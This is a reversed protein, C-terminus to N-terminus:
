RRAMGEREKLRSTRWGEYWLDRSAERLEGRWEAFVAEKLRVFDCHEANMPDAFGWPFKRGIVDPEYMDPSIISLPLYPIEAIESERKHRRISGSSLRKSNPSGGSGSGEESDADEDGEDIGNQGIIPSEPEDDLGLAELPDLNAKRLSDWVSKKLYTMHATTITDAKSIVPIVTTKGQLTRLVQLDLNEDLSGFLRHGTGYSGFHGNGNTTVNKSDEINQDLRAPDLILFVAHIHTDQVGPARMVKMEETFTEEFKSELFSSMERLQLDVVNKDLGESDWLTLGIREGEVESELYHSLFKGSKSTRPAFIDDALPEPKSRKKPPLALSTKLFNLFSTKGAGRAGIILVNFPTPDKRRRIRRPSNVTSVASSAYSYRGRHTMSETRAYPDIWGGNRVGSPIPPVPVSLTSSMTYSRVQPDMSSSRVGHGSKESTASDPRDEGGFSPFHTPEALDPLRPPSRPIAAAERLLRERQQEQVQALDKKHKSSLNGSKPRRLLILGLSSRRPPNPNNNKGNEPIGALRGTAHSPSTGASPTRPRISSVM